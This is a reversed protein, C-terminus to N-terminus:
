RPRARGPADRLPVDGRPGEAGTQSPEKQSIPASLVSRKELLESGGPQGKWIEYDFVARYPKSLDIRRLVDPGQSYDSVGAGLLQFSELRNSGAELLVDSAEGQTLGLRYKIWLDSAAGPWRGKVDVGLEADRQYPTVTVSGDLWSRDSPAALFAKRSAYMQALRLGLGAVLLSAVVLAVREWKM